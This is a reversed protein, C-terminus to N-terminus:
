EEGEQKAKPLIPLPRWMKPDNVQFECFESFWKKQGNKYTWFVQQMFNNEFMGLIHTLQEPLEEKVDRWRTAEKLDEYLNLLDCYSECQHKKSFSKLGWQTEVDWTTKTAEKLEALEKELKAFNKKLESHRRRQYNADCGELEKVKVELKQVDEYKCWEGDVSEYERLRFSDWPNIKYRKIESSM